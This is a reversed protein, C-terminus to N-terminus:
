PKLFLKNKDSSWSPIKGIDRFFFNKICSLSIHDLIMLVNKYLFATSSNPISLYEFYTQQASSVLILKMINLIAEEKLNLWLYPYRCM